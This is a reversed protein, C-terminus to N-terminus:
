KENKVEDVQQMVTTAVDSLAGDVTVIIDRSGCRKHITDVMTPSM